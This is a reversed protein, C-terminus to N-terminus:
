MFNVEEFNTCPIAYFNFAYILAIIGNFRKGNRFFYSSGSSYVYIRPKGGNLFFGEQLLIRDSSSVCYWDVLLTIFLVSACAFLIDAYRSIGLGKKPLM